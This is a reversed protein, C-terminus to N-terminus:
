DHAYVFLMKKKDDLRAFFMREFQVIEGEKLDRLAGEGKGKIIKGNDMLVQVDISDEVPVAHIIKAGLKQEYEQSVFKADKFNFLHMFRYVIGKKIEDQVYFEKGIKITKMGLEKNEPHVSVKVSNVSNEIKIKKADRVFFYRKAIPDIIKRNIAAVVSWDLNTPTASLGAELALEHFTEPVIGRRRLAMITMLRPDDWGEVEKREIKEKMVRGQMEYGNVSVRGYQLVEQKKFKLLDKIYDQLEIRMEGFENSRFIHTVGAIEEGVATEFDYMPWVKYKKGTLAHAKEVIRFLVPDRMVANGNSMDGKLRLTAKGEKFKGKLMGKWFELNEKEKHQRHDCIKSKERFNRMTEKECFCVYAEDNKIMQEAYKYFEEMHESAIIKSDYDIKLWKLDKEVADYYEKKAKEPNTDDFRLVCKGNYKKAYLYNIIFSVAHGLHIYKSPEPPLRTIVKGKVNKLEPLEKKKREKKEELLEPAIKNLEKKQEEVNLKNVKLVIENVLKIIEGAKKKLDPHTSFIQGVVAGSNAKGNYKLANHLAYKRIEQEMSKFKSYSYIFIDTCIEM